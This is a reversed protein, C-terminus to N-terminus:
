QLLPLSKPTLRVPAPMTLLAGLSGLCPGAAQHKRMKHYGAQIMCLAAQLCDQQSSLQRLKRCQVAVPMAKCLLPRQMLAPLSVHAATMSSSMASVLAAVSMARQGVEARTDLTSERRCLIVHLRLCSQVILQM